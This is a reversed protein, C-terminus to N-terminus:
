DPSDVNDNLTLSIEKLIDDLEKINKEIQDFYFKRKEDDEFDEFDTLNLLGQLRALPSRVKHSNLFAYKVFRSNQEEIKATRLKVLQELQAKAENIAEKQHFILKNQEILEKEKRLSSRKFLENGAYILLVAIIINLYYPIFAKEIPMLPTIEEFLFQVGIYAAIGLIFLSAYQWRKKFFLVPAFATVLLLYDFGAEEGHFLSGTITMVIAFVFFIYRATAIQQNEHWYILLVFIFVEGLCLWFPLMLDNILMYIAIGGVIIAATIM